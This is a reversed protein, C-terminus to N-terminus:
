GVLQAQKCCIGAASQPVEPHTWSGGAQAEGRGGGRQKGGAGPPLQGPAPIPPWERLGCLHPSRATPSPCSTPAKKKKKKQCGRWVCCIIARLRMRRGELLETNQGMTMLQWHVSPCDLSTLSLVNFSLNLFFVSQFLNETDAQLLSNAIVPVELCLVIIEMSIRFRFKFLAKGLILVLNTKVALPLNLLKANDLNLSRFLGEHQLHPTPSM